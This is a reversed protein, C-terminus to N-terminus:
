PVKIDSWIKENAPKVAKDSWRDLTIPVERQILSGIYSTLKSSNPEILQNEQNWHVDYKIGRDRARIISKM